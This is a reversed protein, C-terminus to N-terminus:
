IRLSFYNERCHSSFRAVMLCLPLNNCAINCAIDVRSSNLICQGTGGYGQIETLQVKQITSLSYIFNVKVFQWSVISDLDDTIIISVSRIRNDSQDLDENRAYVFSLPGVTTGNAKSSSSVHISSVEPLGIGASPNHYFHIDLRTLQTHNADIIITFGDLTGQDRDWGVYQSPAPPISAQISNDTLLQQQGTCVLMNQGPFSDPDPSCGQNHAFFSEPDNPTTLYYTSIDVTTISALSVCCSLLCSVM